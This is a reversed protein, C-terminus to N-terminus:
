LVLIPAPEDAGASGGESGGRGDGGGGGDGSGGDGGGTGGDGGGHGEGEGGGKGGGGDGGGGSDGGGGDGGGGDGGGGQSCVSHARGAVNARMAACSLRPRLWKQHTFAREPQIANRESPATRAADAVDDEHTLSRASSSTRVAMKRHHKPSSM